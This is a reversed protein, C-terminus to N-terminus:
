KSCLSEILLIKSDWDFMRINSEIAPMDSHQRLQSSHNQDIYGTIYAKIFCLQVLRSMGEKKVSNPAGYFLVGIQFNGGNVRSVGNKGWM